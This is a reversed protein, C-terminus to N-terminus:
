RSVKVITGVSAWKFLWGADETKLNVCGHSMPTGFNMHWYTGHIGYDKYFYMVYPVNPLYYDAGSMSAYRYKVYVKFEGVVTPTTSKGTSVRFRNIMQDGQFAYTRQESLDIYIWRENAGIGGPLDVLPKPTNTVAPPAHTPLATDPPSTPPLTPSATFTPSPSATATNTPIPTETYTSTPTYTFTSTPFSTATSTTTPLLTAISTSTRSPALIYRQALELPGAQNFVRVFQRTIRTYAPVTFWTFAVLCAFILISAWLFISPHPRTSTPKTPTPRTPTSVSRTPALDIKTPQTIGGHLEELRGRAWDMGKRARSSHPNIELARELYALSARPSAIAALTLWAEENQPSISIARETWRRAERRNGAKLAAIARKLAQSSPDSNHAM